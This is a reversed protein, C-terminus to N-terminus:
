RLTQSQGPYIGSPTSSDPTTAAIFLRWDHCKRRYTAM